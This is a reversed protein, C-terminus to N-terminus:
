LRTKGKFTNLYQELTLCLSAENLFITWQPLIDLINNYM